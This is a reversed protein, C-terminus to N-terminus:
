KVSDKKKIYRNGKVWISNQKVIEQLCKIENIVSIRNDFTLFNIIRELNEDIDNIIRDIDKEEMYWELDKDYNFNESNIGKIIALFYPFRYWEGDINLEIFIQLRDRIVRLVIENKSFDLVINGFQKRYYDSRVIKM